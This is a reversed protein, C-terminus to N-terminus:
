AGRIESGPIVPNRPSDPLKEPIDKQESYDEYSFFDYGKWENEETKGNEDEKRQHGQSNRKEKEEQEKKVDEKTILRRSSSTNPIFMPTLLEMKCDFYGTYTKK